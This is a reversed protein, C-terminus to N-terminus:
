EVLGDVGMSLMLWVLSIAREATDYSHTATSRGAVDARIRM